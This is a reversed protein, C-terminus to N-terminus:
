LSEYTVKVSHAYQKGVKGGNKIHLPLSQPTFYGEAKKINKERIKNMRYENLERYIGRRRFEPLVYDNKLIAKHPSYKVGVFGVLKGDIFYGYYIVEKSNFFVGEKSAMRMFPIVDNRSIEKIMAKSSKDFYDGRDSLGDDL